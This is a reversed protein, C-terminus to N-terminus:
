FPTSFSPCFGPSILEIDEFRRVEAAPTSAPPFDMCQHPISEEYAFTPRLRNSGSGVVLRSGGSNSLIADIKDAVVAHCIHVPGRLNNMHIGKEVGTHVAHSVTCDCWQRQGLCRDLRRHRCRVTQPRRSPEERFSSNHM